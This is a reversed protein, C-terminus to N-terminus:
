IPWLYRGDGAPRMQGANSHCFFGLDTARRRTSGSRRFDNCNRQCSKEFAMEARSKLPNYFFLLGILGNFRILEPNAKLGKIL